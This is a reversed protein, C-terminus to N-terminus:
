GDREVELSGTFVYIPRALSKIGDETFQILQSGIDNIVRIKTQDLGLIDRAIIAGCISGTGCSTTYDWVGREFTRNRISNSDVASIINLNIGNPFLDSDTLFNIFGRLDVNIDEEIIVAHPEGINLIYFIREEYEIQLINNSLEAFRTSDSLFRRPDQLHGVNIEVGDANLEGYIIGQNTEISLSGNGESNYFYLTICRIGNGCMNSESGDPDFIRMRIEASNSEQLFLVGDAGVSLKPNCLRIALESRSIASLNNIREDIIIFNNGNTQYKEFQITRSVNGAIVM